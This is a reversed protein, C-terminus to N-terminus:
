IVKTIPLGVVNDRDGDVKDVFAIASGQIGYAGAKGQWELSDLYNNLLDTIDKFYVDTKEVFTYLDNQFYIAVATYVSHKQNSLMMLIRQADERDKAKGIIQNDFYVITDAGIVIDNPYKQHIPTAKDTALKKFRELLPLTEDMTEEISSADIIFDIGAQELLEKRRPSNSALIIKNM